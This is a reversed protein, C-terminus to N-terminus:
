GNGDLNNWKLKWMPLLESKLITGQVWLGDLEVISEYTDANTRRTRGITFALIKKLVRCEGKRKRIVGRLYSIISQFVYRDIM